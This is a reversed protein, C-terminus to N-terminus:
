TKTRLAKFRAQAEEPWEQRPDYYGEFYRSSEPLIVWQVKTSTYIHVDPTLASPNQLTGVRVFGIGQGAAGYHSWLATLCNPCRKIEQGKGSATPIAVSETTGRTLKIATTEVMANLAFASGTERQCYSCHCCHVFLPSALVEFNCEGCSCSGASFVQTM